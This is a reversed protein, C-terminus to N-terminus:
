KANVELWERHGQENYKQHFDTCCWIKQRILSLHLASNPLYIAGLSGCRWLLMEALVVFFRRRLLDSWPIAQFAGNISM